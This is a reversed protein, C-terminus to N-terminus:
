TLAPEPVVDDRRDVADTQPPLERAMRVPSALLAIGALLPGLAALALTPRVGILGAVLGGALAGLPGVGAALLNVAAGTRGLLRDPTIAQRLSRENVGYLARAADGALQSALMLPLAVFPAWGALPILLTAVAMVGAASILAGGPGWRRLGHGAVIAGALNGAGGAAITLGLTAPGMGLQRLAYLAYLAGIINGFFSFAGASLALARLVPQDLVARLGERLEDRLRARGGPAAPLSETGRILAVAAASILFSLADGFIAIPATVLQVLVGTLGPGAIEAVSESVALKSNGEVLSDRGVLGPLYAVYALDFVVSLLGTLSSVAALQALSLRGLLAAVPISLLLAARGLDAAILVPRRRHRDVWVGALLGVLLVPAAGIAALLGMQAPSAGLVLVATLPVGDRTIRSGFASVTQGAWLKLFDPQHRLGRRLVPM